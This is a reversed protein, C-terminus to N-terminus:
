IEREAEDKTTYQCLAGTVACVIKKQYQPRLLLAEERSNSLFGCEVLVGPCHINEMLYVSSAQKCQRRNNPDLATRLASQIEEALVRSSTTKAYFVQAGAYKEQPFHNQHISVLIGSPVGNVLQVRNKLDSVKKESLTECDGTYVSIDTARIMLTDFGCFSLLQELRLAIELNLMSESSGSIGTAGGDEGGHGADIIIAPPMEALMATSVSLNYRVAGLILFCIGALLAISGIGIKGYQKM